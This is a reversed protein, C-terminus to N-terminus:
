KNEVKNIRLPLLWQTSTSYYNRAFFSFINCYKKFCLCQNNFVSFIFDIFITLSTKSNLLTWSTWHPLLLSLIGYISLPPPFTGMYYKLNCALPRYKKAHFNRTNKCPTPLLDKLPPIDILGHTAWKLDWGPTGQICVASRRCRKWSSLRHSTKITFLM